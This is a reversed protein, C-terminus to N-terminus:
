DNKSVIAEIEGSNLLELAHEWPNIDWNGNIDNFKGIRIINNHNIHRNFPYDILLVPCYKSIKIANLPSDEFFLNIGQEKAILSKCKKVKTNMDRQLILNSELLPLDNDKILEISTNLPDKFLWLSRATIYYINKKDFKSLFEKAGDILNLNKINQQSYYSKMFDILKEQEDPFLELLDWKDWDVYSFSPDIFERIHNVFDNVELILTHDIDVGLIINEFVM